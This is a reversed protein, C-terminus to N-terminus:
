KCFGKGQVEPDTRIQEELKSMNKEDVQERRNMVNEDAHAGQANREIDINTQELYDAQPKDLGSVIDELQVDKMFEYFEREESSLNPDKLKAEARARHEGERRGLDDTQGIYVRDPFNPNTGRYIRLNGFDYQAPNANHVLTGPGVFYNPLEEIQLNWTSAGHAERREISQISAAAGSVLRLQMGPELDQAAVWAQLPEVWFRHLGTALIAQDEVQVHYFHAARNRYVEIVRRPVVRGLTFDQALVMEGPALSDIPRQGGATWVLTGAAFCPLVSREEPHLQLETRKVGTYVDELQARVDLAKQKAIDSQRGAKRARDQLAEREEGHKEYSQEWLDDAKKKLRAAEKEFDAQREEMDARRDQLDKLQDELQQRKATEVEDELDSVETERDALDPELIQEREAPTASETDKALRDLQEGVGKAREILDGRGPTEPPLAEATSAAKGARSKLGQVREALPGRAMAKNHVLIELTSVLFTHPHSVTLNFVEVASAMLVISRVTVIGQELSLLPTGVTLEGATRWGSEPVWFPHETSCVITTEGIVLRLVQHAVRCQTGVVTGVRKELTLPHVCIVADGAQLTEIRLLGGPTLVPTGAVFCNQPESDPPKKDPTEPGPTEPPPGGPDDLFDFLKGPPKGTGERLYRAREQNFARREAPTSKTGQTGPEDKIGSAVDDYYDAAAGAEEPTLDSHPRRGNLVDEVKKKNVGEPWKKAPPKEPSGPEGPEGPEADPKPADPELTEPKPAEAPPVEAAPAAMQTAPVKEGEPLFIGKIEAFVAKAFDAALEGLVSMVELVALNVISGSLLEYDENDAAVREKGSMALRNDAMLNLRSKAITLAEAALTSVLLAEGVEYAVAAGAEPAAFVAGVLVTALYFWGYLHGVIGNVDRWIALGDDAAKSFNFDWLDQKLKDAHKGAETADTIVGPWPWVIDWAVNILMDKWHGVVHALKPFLFQQLLVHIHPGDLGVMNGGVAEVKGPILAVLGDLAKHIAAEFKDQDSIVEWIDKLQARVEGVVRMAGDLHLLGEMERVCPVKRTFAVFQNFTNWVGDDLIALPGFEVILIAQRLIELVPKVFEYIKRLVGKVEGIVDSFKCKGKGALNGFFTAAVGVAGAALSLFPIGALTEQLSQLGTSIAGAHECLFASAQDLVATVQDVGSLILPLIHERFEARLKEGIPKIGNAWIWKLANWLAPVGKWIVIIPGLPSLLILAAAVLKLPGLIPTIKERIKFWQEKAKDYIWDLIGSGEEKAIKFERKVWDWISASVKRVPLLKDWVWTAKEKIWAWASGAAKQIADLAPAGLADWIDSFFGGVAKAAKGLEALQEGGIEKVFDIISSAAAVMSQCSGTALQGIAKGLSGALETFVGAIAGAVGQNRIRQSLASFLGGLGSTIKDFLAGGVDRLFPLLGPAIRDVFAAASEKGADWLDGVATKAAGLAAKGGSKVGQWAAGGTADWADSLSFDRRVAPDPDATVRHEHASRNVVAEAVDEAEREMPDHVDGVLVSGHPAPATPAEGSGQQLTHTVEHAILRTGEASGPNYKGAAFYIDRGVTYANAQLADASEAARADTHVRVNDFDAGMRRQLLQQTQRDLPQGPTDPIVSAPVNGGAEAGADVAPQRQVLETPAMSPAAPEAQCSACTGGCACSRQLKRAARPADSLADQMARNGFTRQAQRMASARMAVANPHRMAVNSLLRATSNASRGALRPEGAGPATQVVPVGAAREPSKSESERESTAIESAPM